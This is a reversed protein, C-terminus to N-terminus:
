VSSNCHVCSSPGREESCDTEDDGERVWDWESRIRALEACQLPAPVIESHTLWLGFVPELGAIDTMAKQGLLTQRCVDNLGTTTASAQQQLQRLLPREDGACHEFEITIGNLAMDSLAPSPANAIMIAKPGLAKRLSLTYYPRWAAFQAQLADLSANKGSSDISFFSSCHQPRGAGPHLHEHACHEMTAPPASILEIYEAWPEYFTSKYDDIDTLPALLM